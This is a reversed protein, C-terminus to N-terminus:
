KKMYVFRNFEKARHSTSRLNQKIFTIYVLFLGKNIKSLNPPEYTVAAYDIAVRVLMHSQLM